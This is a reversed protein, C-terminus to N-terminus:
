PGEAIAAEVDKRSLGYNFCCQNQMGKHQWIVRLEDQEINIEASWETSAWTWRCPDQISQEAGLEVLWLELAMLSHQNLPTDVPPLLSM